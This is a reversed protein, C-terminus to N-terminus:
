SESANVCRIIHEFDARLQAYQESSLRNVVKRIVIKKNGAKIGLHSGTVHLKWPIPSCKIDRADEAM